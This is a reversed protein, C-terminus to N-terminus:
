TPLFRLAHTVFGMVLGKYLDVGLHELKSDLFSDRLNMFEVM